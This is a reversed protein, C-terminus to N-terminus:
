TKYVYYINDIITYYTNQYNFIHINNNVAINILDKLHTLYIINSNIHPENQTVILIDQYKKLITKENEKHFLIKIGVLIIILVIFIFSIIKHFDIKPTNELFTHDEEMEIEIINESIPITFLVYPNNEDNMKIHLQVYLYTETKINYYEQFSKVYNVYYSYDLHYNEKINIEEQNINNVNKLNFDKTWILKTGNEAYSKLTAIIDYSYNENKKSKLYYNFYLDISQISNAIYYHNADIKNNYFYHNPKLTVEYYTENQFQYLPDKQINKNMYFLGLFLFGIFFIIVSLFVRRKRKEQM